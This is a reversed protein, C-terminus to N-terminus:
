GEDKVGSEEGRSMKLGDSMRDRESENRFTQFTEEFLPRAM